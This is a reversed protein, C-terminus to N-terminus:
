ILVYRLLKKQISSLRIKSVFIVIVDKSVEEVTNILVVIKAKDNHVFCEFNKHLFLRHYEEASLYTAPIKRMITTRLLRLMTFHKMRM